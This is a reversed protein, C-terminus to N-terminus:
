KIGGKEKIFCCSVISAQSQNKNYSGDNSIHICLHSFVNYYITGSITLTKLPGYDTTISDLYKKSKSGCM